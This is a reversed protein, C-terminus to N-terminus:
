EEDAKNDLGKGLETARRQVQELVETDKKCHPAWFLQLMECPQQSGLAPGTMKGQQVEYFQGQSMLGVQGSEETSSEGHLTRYLVASRKRIYLRIRGQYLNLGNGQGKDSTVVSFLDIGAGGRGRMLFNYMIILEGTHRRKELSFLGLSRLWEEYLEYELVKVM